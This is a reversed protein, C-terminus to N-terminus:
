AARSARASGVQTQLEHVLDSLSVVCLVRQGNRRLSPISADGAVEHIGQGDLVLVTPPLVASVTIGARVRIYAVVLRVTRLSMGAETLDLAARLAVVDRFTYLRSVGQGPSAVASPSVFGSRHWGDLRGVSVQLLRAVQPTSFQEREM